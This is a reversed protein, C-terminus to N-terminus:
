KAKKKHAIFSFKASTLLVRNKESAWPSGTIFRGLRWWGRHLLLLPLVLLRIIKLPLRPFLAMRSQAVLASWHSSPAIHEIDFGGYQLSNFIGLHTHHYYSNGHFPELFAVTGIFRGGSNLVRYAEKMVIFPYRIHELVSISLMFEFSNDKFPLAHADALIPGDPSNIDIGAYEFGADECIKRYITGGCGLDLMISENGRPKPFYSILEKSLCSPVKVKTFDLQPSSNMRMPKFEFGEKPLLEPGFEFQLQDSKKRRVRLDLQGNNVCQYKERCGGCEAGSGTKSLPSGCYPCALINWIRKSINDTM